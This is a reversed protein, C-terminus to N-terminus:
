ATDVAPARPHSQGVPLVHTRGSEVLEQTCGDLVRSGLSPQKIQALADFTCGRKGFRNQAGDYASM